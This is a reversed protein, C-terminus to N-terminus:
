AYQVSVGLQRLRASLDPDASSDTILQGIEALEAVLNLHTRGFKSADILFHRRDSRRMMAKKIADFGFVAETVGMGSLGAAGLFCRDVHHRDIFDVTESGIVAGEEPVYNGPCLIVRASRSQGIAAAIQLSNTLVTVKRELFALFRALQITTSGADVMVTEGDGVMSAAHRGIRERETVRERRRADLERHSGPHLATAGGYARSVQGSRSLDEVDRRITESTVGFRAALETIRVHPKLRLELLIQERREGKSLRGEPPRVDSM